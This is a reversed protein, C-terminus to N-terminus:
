FLRELQDDSKNNKSKNKKYNLFILVGATVTIVAILIPCVIITIKRDNASNTVVSDSNLYTRNHYKIGYIPHTNGFDAEAYIVTLTDGVSLESFLTKDIDDYYSGSAAYSTGDTFQVNFYPKAATIISLFDDAKNDTYKSVTGTKTKLQDAPSILCICLILATLLVLYVSIIIINYVAFRNNKSRM